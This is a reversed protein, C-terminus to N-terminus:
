RYIHIRDVKALDDVRCFARKSVLLLDLNKRVDFPKSEADKRHRVVQDEPCGLVLRGEAHRERVTEGQGGGHFM